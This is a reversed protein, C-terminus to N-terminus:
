TFGVNKFNKLKKSNNASLNDNNIATNTSFSNLSLKIINDKYNRGNRM